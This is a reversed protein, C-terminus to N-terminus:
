IWISTNSQKQSHFIIHFKYSIKNFHLDIYYYM